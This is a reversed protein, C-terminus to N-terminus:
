DPAPFRQRPGAQPSLGRLEQTGALRMAVIAIVIVGMTIVMAVISGAESASFQNFLGHWLVVVILSGGSSNYLWTLFIAGLWLGAAWGAVQLIGMQMFSANEFFAPVHWLGWGLALLHTARIASRDRQLRPLAFGRWGTEEGLGFTVIQILLTLPLAPLDGAHSLAALSPWEGDIVRAALLGAAALVLPSLLAFALWPWRVRSPSFQGLLARLGARGGTLAAILMAAAAPGFAGAYHWWAPVDHRWWGQATAVRPLWLTWSVAYAVVFYAAVPHQRVIGLMGPLGGDVTTRGRVAQRLM